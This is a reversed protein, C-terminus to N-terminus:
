AEIAAPEVEAAGDVEPTVFDDETQYLIALVAKLLPQEQDENTQCLIEIDRLKSFYFDREQAARARARATTLAHEPPARSQDAGAAVRLRVARACGACKRSGM